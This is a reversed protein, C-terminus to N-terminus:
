LLVELYSRVKEEVKLDKAYQSLLPINKNLRAAYKKFAEAIVGSEIGSKPRLIDCLTKEANYAYVRNGSPSNIPQIGLSYYEKKARNAIVGDSKVKTLNYNEPFTMSFMLPTQDTLDLLFLATEKAYIGRKFRYQLNVFEDSWVEPLVYVGRASHELLGKQVLDKLYQPAIGLSQIMTATVIGNHEKALTLIVEYNTMYMM